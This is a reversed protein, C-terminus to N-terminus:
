TSATGARTAAAAPPTTIRRYTPQNSIRARGVQLDPRSHANRRLRTKFESFPYAGKIVQVIKMPEGAAPTLGVLFLPTSDAGLEQMRVVSERVAKSHKGSDMCAKLATTDLGATQAIAVIQDTTKAPTEFLKTHM